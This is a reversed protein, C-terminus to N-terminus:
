AKKRSASTKGKTTGGDAYKAEFTGTMQDGKYHGTTRTTVQVGKRLVSEYPGTETVVSDGGAAVIRARIQPRNPLTLMWGDPDATATMTFTTVVSDRPGVMSKGAWTGAVGAPLQVPPKAAAKTPTAQAGAATAALVLASAVARSVHRM